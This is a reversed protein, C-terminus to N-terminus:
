FLMDRVSLYQTILSTDKLQAHYYSSSLFSVTVLCLNLVSIVCVCGMSNYTNPLFSVSNLLVRVVSCHSKCDWM